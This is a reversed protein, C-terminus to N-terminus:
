KTPKGMKVPAKRPAQNGKPEMTLKFTQGEATVTVTLGDIETVKFTEHVIDGVRVFEGDIRAMPTAGGMVSNLQLGGAMMVLEERRAKIRAEAEAQMRAADDVVPQGSETIKTAGTDLMFPSKGFEGLAVDLPEQIRALDAMIRDYTRAKEADAEKYDTNIPKFDVGSKLGEHRMWFLSAGSVALVLGLLLTQTPIKRRPKSRSEDAGLGTFPNKAPEVPAIQQNPNNSM